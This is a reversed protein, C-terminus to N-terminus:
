FKTICGKPTHFGRLYICLTEGSKARRLFIARIERIESMDYIIRHHTDGQPTKYEAHASISLLSLIMVVFLKRM